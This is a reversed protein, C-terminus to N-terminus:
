KCYCNARIFIARIDGPRRYRLSVLVTPKLLRTRRISGACIFRRLYINKNVQPAFKDAPRLCRLREFCTCLVPRKGTADELGKLIDHTSAVVQAASAGDAAELDLAVPLDTAAFGGAAKVAETLNAVQEAASDSSRYFHYVGRTIGVEGM